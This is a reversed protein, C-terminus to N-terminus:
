RAGSGPALADSRDRRPARRPPAVVVPVPTESELETALMNRQIRRFLSNPRSGIVIMDAAEEAAIRALMEARDGVAARLEVSDHVGYEAALRGLLRVAVDEATLGADGDAQVSGPGDVVHVLVLRLRFRASLTAALELAGRGDESNTVGCVITGRVQVEGRTGIANEKM